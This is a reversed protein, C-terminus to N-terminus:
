YWQVLLCFAIIMFARIILDVISVEKSYLENMFDICLVILFLVLIIYKYM